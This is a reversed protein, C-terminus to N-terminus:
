QTIKIEQTIGMIEEVTGASFGTIEKGIEDDVTIQNPIGKVEEATGQSISNGQPVHMIEQLTEQVVSILHEPTGQHVIIIDDETGDLGSTERPSIM